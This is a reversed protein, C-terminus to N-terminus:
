FAKHVGLSIALPPQFATPLQFGTRRRAPTGAATKLFVLDSYSGGEVPRVADGTFVEDLNTLDRRDFLNVLDLTATFGRWQAALRLNAQGIVPNRGASGRPLLEVIGDPGDALVNRPRGSGVSLRTAVALGVTGLTGRREAEVFARGGPDTPLPGYLNSADFDWDPGQLLNAGQRPDYPGTWTGVTRGWMVGARIAIKERQAMELSFAVLETERTAPLDGNRGPNDFGDPTTELARRIFRGQGWLTARLAGVLAVEAGLTVEDQEIPGIGPEIRYASGADHTRSNGGGIEFDDVTADRQIVTQGLGAPLMAFTKGLNAWLRSRGGGLVDWAIGVRPSVQHSFHLRSGVWMLEWRLGGDIALGDQPTFTEEAYAATYITRYTLQSASAYGCPEDLSDSCQGLYFRRHSLEGPFLSRQQENATFATTTVLRTDELAMGARVVHHGARHALDVTATPRDGVTNTLPGAGGSAFFGFPVPCNPILQTPDLPATDDCIAALPPDDPLSAPIYASLVQPIHAAAADRASDRRASHHWTLQARARTAAWTGRWTAIADGIVATREIGAAQLTANALFRADRQVQGVLSLELHHPGRDIGIRAMAPVFVELPRATTQEIPVVVVEGPVGDPVGDGDADALRSARWTHDSASLNPAIGAAYWAAGGLAAGLAPIPGTAVLSMTLSPGADASLRRVTYSNAAIPAARGTRTLQAWVDAALEHRATGRRLRADITGGTSARDKASFGGASVMIGELFALPVRTDAAGTRIGDAPAGDITWRNELGTAGGFVPGAEDRSAGLAYWAVADHTADGVPLRLLYSGSLWTSLGYPTADDLPDTAIACNFALGDGCGPLAAPPPRKRLGFAERLDDARAEPVRGALDVLGARGALGAFLGALLACCSRVGSPLM